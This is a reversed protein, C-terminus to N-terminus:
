TTGALKTVDDVSPSIEFPVPDAPLEGEEPAEVVFEIEKTLNSKLIGRVCEVSITYTCNVYM